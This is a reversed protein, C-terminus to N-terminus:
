RLVETINLKVDQPDIMIIKNKNAFIDKNYPKLYLSIHQDYDAIYIDKLVINGTEYDILGVTAIEKLKNDVFNYAKIKGLNDDELFSLPYSIGENVFTFRSSILTSYLYRTEYNNGIKVANPEVYLKNNTDIDYSVTSRVLPTIRKIIRIETDNSVINPDTNDIASVIKSYRLDKAFKELNNISYNSLTDYIMSSIEEVSREGAVSDYQVKSDIACYLYEPDTIIIRNPISIYPLLYNTVKNKVYNPAITGTSPKLCVIVRGYLKPELEQGGYIVVDSIEGGFKSIVLSAYDDSSIARQQTAFYRPASFRISEISEFDAGGTSKSVTTVDQVNISAQNVLDLEDSFDFLTVGDANKGESVRYNVNIISGNLPKRGFLNDGFVIEFKNDQSGQLFYVNSNSSLGFLNEARTFLTNSAGNNEIVNVTLSNTDINSNLLSFLQNEIDYDVIFSDTFYNGEFIRLNNATFTTDSSVLVTTENTTFTYSGNANVGTFKTGKPVTLKGTTIDTSFVVNIEAASSRKSRPVYNLEKAHSVVSDYKQATDLFMESAVMNLYFANLYSNYSMVDLLVNINSGDFDYDKFVSQTKLFEKFNTKLSDFDLSSLTLSSNAM